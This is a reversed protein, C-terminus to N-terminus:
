QVGKYNGNKKKEPTPPDSEPRNSSADFLKPTDKWATSTFQQEELHFHISRVCSGCYRYRTGVL